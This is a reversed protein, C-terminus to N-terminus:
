NWSAIRRNRLRELCEGRAEYELGGPDVSASKAEIMDAGVSVAKNAERAVEAGSLRGCGGCHRDKGIMTM